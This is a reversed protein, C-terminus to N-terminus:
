PTPVQGNRAEWRKLAQERAESAQQCIDPVREYLVAQNERDEHERLLVDRAEAMVRDRMETLQQETSKM